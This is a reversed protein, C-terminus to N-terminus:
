CLSRAAAATKCCTDFALSLALVRAVPRMKNQPDDYMESHNLALSDRLDM